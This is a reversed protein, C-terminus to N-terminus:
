GYGRRLHKRRSESWRNLDFRISFARKLVSVSVVPLFVLGVLGWFTSPLFEM